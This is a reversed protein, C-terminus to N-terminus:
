FQIIKYDFPFVHLFDKFHSSPYEFWNGTYELLLFLREFVPYGPLRYEANSVSIGTTGTSAAANWLMLGASRM